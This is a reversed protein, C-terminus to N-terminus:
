RMATGRRASAHPRAAQARWECQITAVREAARKSKEDSM